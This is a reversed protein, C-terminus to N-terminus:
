FDILKQSMLAEICRTVVAHVVDTDHNVLPNHAANYRRRIERDGNCVM